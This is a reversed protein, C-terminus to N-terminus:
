NCTFINIQEYIKSLLLLFQVCLYAGSFLPFAHYLKNNSWKVKCSGNYELDDKKEIRAVPAISTCDEDLFKVLSHTDSFYKDVAILLHLLVLVSVTYMHM